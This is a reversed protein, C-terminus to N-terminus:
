IRRRPLDGGHRHGPLEAFVKVHVVVSEEVLFDVIFNAVIEEKYFFQVPRDMKYTIENSKFQLALAQKIYKETRLGAGLGEYVQYFIEIIQNVLASRM